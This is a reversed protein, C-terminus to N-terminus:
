RVVLDVIISEHEKYKEYADLAALAREISEAHDEAEGKPEYYWNERMPTIKDGKLLYLDGGLVVTETSQNIWELVKRTGQISWAYGPISLQGLSIAEEQLQKSFQTPIQM